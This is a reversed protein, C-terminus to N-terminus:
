PPLDRHWFVIRSHKGADVTNSKDILYRASGVVESV